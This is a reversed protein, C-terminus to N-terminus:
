WYERRELHVIQFGVSFVVSVLAQQKQYNTM